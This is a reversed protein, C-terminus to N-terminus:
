VGLGKLEVSCCHVMMKLTDLVYYCQYQFYTVRRVHCGYLLYYIRNAFINTLNLSRVSVCM